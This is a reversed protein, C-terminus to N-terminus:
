AVSRTSLRSCRPVSKHASRIVFRYSHSWISSTMESALIRRPALYCTLNSFGIPPQPEGLREGRVRERRADRSPYCAGHGSNVVGSWQSCTCELLVGICGVAKRALDNANQCRSHRARPPQVAIRETDPSRPQCGMKSTRLHDRNQFAQQARETTGAGTTSAHYAPGNHPNGTTFRTINLSMSIYLRM